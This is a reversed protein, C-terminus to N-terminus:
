AIPAPATRNTTLWAVEVNIRAEAVCWIHFWGLDNGNCVVKLSAEGATKGKIKFRAQDSTVQTTVVEAIGSPSIEFTCHNICGVSAYGAFSIELETEQDIGVSIWRAGDRDLKNNPLSLTGASTPIPLWYEDTGPTAVINTKHDFGFYRSPINIADGPYILNPNVINPNANILMRTTVGHARAITSLNDGSVVTYSTINPPTPGEFTSVFPCCRAIPSTPTNTGAM